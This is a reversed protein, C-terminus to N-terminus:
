LQIPAENARKGAESFMRLEFEHIRKRRIVQWGDRRELSLYWAWHGDDTPVHAMLSGCGNNASNASYWFLTSNPALKSVYRRLNEASAGCHHIRSIFEQPQYEGSADRCYHLEAIIRNTVFPPVTLEKRWSGVAGVVKGSFALWKHSFWNDIKFISIEQPGHVRIVGAVIQTVVRVYEPDDNEDLELELQFM